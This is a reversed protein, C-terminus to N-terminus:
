NMAPANESMFVTGDKEVGLYEFSKMDKMISHITDADKSFLGTSLIDAAVPDPGIITLSQNQDAPFGSHPDLIHHIRKGASDLRYREYDGSTFVAGNKVSLTGLLKEQSGSSNRPHQIGVTFADATSSRLQIDGGFSILYKEIKLSDLHNKVARMVYSKAIGGVDINVESSAFAIHNNGLLTIKDMGTHRLLQQVKKESEPSNLAPVKQDPNGSSWFSKLKQLTIDFGGRTLEHYTKATHIMEYLEEHIRLTDNKRHNLDYVASATDVPSYRRNYTNLITEIDRWVGPSYNHSYLSIEIVTSYKFFVRSHKQLNQGGCANLGLYLLLVLTWKM